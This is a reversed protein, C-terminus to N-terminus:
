PRADRAKIGVGEFTAVLREGEFVKVMYVSHRDTESIRTAIAELMGSAPSLYRIGATIAVQAVRDLNAATGFAQDAVAFIAGGHVDGNPNAKGSPDMVVRAMGPRAEMIRMGLLRAFECNNFLDIREERGMGELTFRKMM